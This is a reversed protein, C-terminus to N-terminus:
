IIHNKNIITVLGANDRLEQLLRLVPRSIHSSYIKLLSEVLDKASQGNYVENPDTTDFNQLAQIYIEALAISKVPGPWTLELELAIDKFTRDTKM